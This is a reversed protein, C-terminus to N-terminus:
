VHARGIKPAIDYTGKLGAFHLYSEEDLESIFRDADASLADIERQQLPEPM